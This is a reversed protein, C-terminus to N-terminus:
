ALDHQKLAPDTDVKPATGDCGSVDRVAGDVCRIVTIDGEPDKSQLGSSNAHV